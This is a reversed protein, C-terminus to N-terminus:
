INTYRYWYELIGTPIVSYNVYINDSDTSVFSIDTAGSNKPQVNVYTPSGSLSHPIEITTTGNASLSISGEYNIGENKVFYATTTNASIPLEDVFAIENVSVTNASSQKYFDSTLQGLTVFQNDEIADSGQLPSNIVM